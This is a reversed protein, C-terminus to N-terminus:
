TRCKEPCVMWWWRYFICKRIRCRKDNQFNQWEGNGSQDEAKLISPSIWCGTPVTAVEGNNFAGVFQDWDAVQKSIGSDVIEKYIAFAEKLAENDKIDVNGDEDTYWSGASQLMMRIQGIDSPDLTLM